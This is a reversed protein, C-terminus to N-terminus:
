KNSHMVQGVMRSGGPDYRTQKVVSRVPAVVKPEPDVCSLLSTQYIIVAGM